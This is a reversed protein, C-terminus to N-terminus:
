KFYINNYNNIYNNQNHLHNVLRGELNIFVECHTQPPSHDFFQYKIPQM